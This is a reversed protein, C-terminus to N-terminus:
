LLKRGAELQELANVRFRNKTYNENELDKLAKQLKENEVIIIDTISSTTM